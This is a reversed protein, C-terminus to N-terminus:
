ISLSRLKEEVDRIADCPLDINGEWIIRWALLRGAVVETFNKTVSAYWRIEKVSLDMIRTAAKLKLTAVEQPEVFIRM